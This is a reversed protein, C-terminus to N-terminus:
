LPGEIADGDRQRAVDYVAIETKLRRALGILDVENRIGVRLQEYLLPLNVRMQPNFAAVQEM